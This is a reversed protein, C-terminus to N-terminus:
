APSPAQEQVLALLEDPRVCAFRGAAPHNLLYDISRRIVADGGRDIFSDCRVAFTLYPAAQRALIADVIPAIADPGHRLFPKNLRPPEPPTARLRRVVGLYLAGL